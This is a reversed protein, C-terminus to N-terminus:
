KKRQVEEGVDKLKGNQDKKRPRLPETSEDPRFRSAHFASDTPMALMENGLGRRVEEFYYTMPYHEVTEKTNRRRHSKSQQSEANEKTPERACIGVTQSREAPKILDAKLSRARQVEPETLQAQRAAQTYHLSLNANAKAAVTQGSDGPKKIKVPGAEHAVALSNKARRAVDQPVDRLTPRIRIDKSKHLATASTAPSASLLMDTRPTAITRSRQLPLDVRPPSQVLAEESRGYEARLQRLAADRTKSTRRLAGHRHVTASASQGHGGGQEASRPVGVRSPATDLSMDRYRLSTDPRTPTVAALEPPFRYRGMESERPRRGDEETRPSGQQKVANVPRQTTSPFPVSSGSALEASLWAAHATPISGKAGYPLDEERPREPRKATNAARFVQRERERLEPDRVVPPRADISPREPRPPRRTEREDKSLWGDISYAPHPRPRSIDDTSIKRTRHRPEYRTTPTIAN